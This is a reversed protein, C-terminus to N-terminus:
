SPGFPIYVARELIFRGNAFLHEEFEEGSSDEGDEGQCLTNYGLSITYKKWNVINSSILGADLRVQHINGRQGIYM